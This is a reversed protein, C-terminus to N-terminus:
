RALGLKEVVPFGADIEHPSRDLVRSSTCLVEEVVFAGYMFAKDRAFLAESVEKLPNLLAALSEPRSRPVFLNWYALRANPKAARVLLRLLCEYNEVSIYEFLDSLNFADFKDPSKELFEKLSCCRWELRDVNDRISEFNEARLAFPLAGERHQGELIWHLYPNTSPELETMAYRMRELLSEAVGGRVYRFLQPDRGLKGMVFRSFFIRFLLKWRFSNWQSEYFQRREVSTKRAFLQEVRHRNHILHLVRTRFLRLYRELAGASGIGSEILKPCQDWHNRAAISLHKRCREYLVIRNRSAVSGILALLEPHELERFAAVRLELAALQAPNRDIALVKHPKKSLMALTNDGASAISLCTSGPQIHLAELLIDADEWCQGYGLGTINSRVARKSRM